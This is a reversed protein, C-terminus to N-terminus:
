RRSVAMEPKKAKNGSYTSYMTMALAQFDRLETPAPIAPINPSFDISPTPPLVTKEPKRTIVIQITIPISTRKEKIAAILRAASLASDFYM